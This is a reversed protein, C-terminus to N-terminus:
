LQFCKCSKWLTELNLSPYTLELQIRLAHDWPAFSSGAFLNFSASYVAAVSESSTSKMVLFKLANM